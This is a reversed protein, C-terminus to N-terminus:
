RFRLFPWACDYRGCSMRQCLRFAAGVSLSRGCEVRRNSLYRAACRLCSPCRRSWWMCSLESGPESGGLVDVLLPIRGGIQDRRVNFAADGAVVHAHLM